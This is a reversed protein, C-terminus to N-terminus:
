SRSYTLWGDSCTATAARGNLVLRRPGPVKLKMARLNGSVEVKDAGVRIFARDAFTFSEGGGELTLPQDCDPWYRLLIRDDIAGGDKGTVRMAIGAPSQGILTFSEVRPQDHEFPSSDDFDPPM